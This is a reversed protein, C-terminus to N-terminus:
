VTKIINFYSIIFRFAAGKLNPSNHMDALVLCQCVNEMSLGKSLVKLKKFEFISKFQFVQETLNKLQDLQFRDAQPFLQIAMKDLLPVRGSYLYFVVERM